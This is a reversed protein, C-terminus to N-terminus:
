AAPALFSLSKSDILQRLLEGPLDARDATLTVTGGTAEVTPSTMMASWPKGPSQPPAGSAVGERIAQAADPPADRYELMVRKADMTLLVQGATRARNPAPGAWGVPADQAALDALLGEPEAADELRQAVAAVDGPAGTVLVDGVRTAGAPVESAQIGLALNVPPAGTEVILDAESLAAGIIPALLSGPSIDEGPTATFVYVGRQVMTPPIAGLLRARDGSPAAQRGGMTCGAVLVAMAALALVLGASAWRRNM